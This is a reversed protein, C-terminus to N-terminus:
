EENVSANSDSTPEPQVDDDIDFTYNYLIRGNGIEHETRKMKIPDTM